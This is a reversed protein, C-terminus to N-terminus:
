WIRDIKWEGNIKINYFMVNKNGRNGYEWYRYIYIGYWDKWLSIMM